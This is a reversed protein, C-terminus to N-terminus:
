RVLGHETLCIERKVIQMQAGSRGRVLVREDLKFLVCPNTGERLAIETLDLGFSPGLEVGHALDFESDSYVLLYLFKSKCSARHNDFTCEDSPNYSWVDVSQRIRADVPMDDPKIDPLRVLPHLYRFYEARKGAMPRAAFAPATSQAVVSLSFLLTVLTIFRKM